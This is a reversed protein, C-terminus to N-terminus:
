QVSSPGADSVPRDKTADYVVEIATHTRIFARIGEAQNKTIVDQSFAVADNRDMFVNFGIPKAGDKMTLDVIYKIVEIEKFM